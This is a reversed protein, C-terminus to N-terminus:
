LARAFRRLLPQMSPQGMRRSCQPLSFALTLCVNVCLLLGVLSEGDIGVRSCRESEAAVAGHRGRALYAQYNRGKGWRPNRRDSYEQFVIAGLLGAILLALLAVLARVVTKPLLLRKPVTSVSSRGGGSRSQPQLLPTQESSVEM